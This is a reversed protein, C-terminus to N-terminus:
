ASKLCKEVSRCVKSCWTELSPLLITQTRSRVPRAAARQFATVHVEVHRTRYPAKRLNQDIWTQRLPHPPPPAPLHPPLVSWRDWSWGRSGSTRGPYDCSASGDGAASSSSKMASINLALSGLSKGAEAAEAAGDRSIGRSRVEGVRYM